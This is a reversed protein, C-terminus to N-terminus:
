QLALACIVTFALGYFVEQIGIFRAATPKTIQTGYFARCLLGCTALLALGNALSIAWLVFSIIVGLIHAILTPIVSVTRGHILRIQTRVYLISPVTRLAILLWALTALLLTQNAALLIASVSAALVLAGCIESLLSRGNNRFELILQVAALPLAVLLPVWFAGEATIVTLQLAALAIAGYLGTFGWALRTREYLRGKRYDKVVIKVPQHLLFVAVAAVAIGAGALSPALILGLLLSEIM